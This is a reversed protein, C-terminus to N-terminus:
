DALPHGQMRDYASTLTERTDVAEVRGDHLVLYSASGAPIPRSEDFTLMWGVDLRQAVLRDVDAGPYIEGVRSLARSASDINVTGRGEQRM